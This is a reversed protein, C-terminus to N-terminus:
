QQNEKSSSKLWAYYDNITKDPNLERWKRLTNDGQEPVDNPGRQAVSLQAEALQSTTRDVRVLLKILMSCVFWPLPVVMLALIGGTILYADQETIAKVLAICSIVLLLSGIIRSLGAIFLLRSHDTDM